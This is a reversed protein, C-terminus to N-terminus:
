ENDLEFPIVKLVAGSPSIIPQLATVRLQSVEAQLKDREAVLQVIQEEKSTMDTQLDRIDMELQDQRHLLKM